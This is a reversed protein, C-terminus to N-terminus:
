IRSLGWIKNGGADTGQKLVILLRGLLSKPEPEQIIFTSHERQIVYNPLDQHIIGDEPLHGRFARDELTDRQEPPIPPRTDPITLRGWGLWPDTTSRTISSQIPVRSPPIPTDQPVIVPKPSFVKQFKEVFVSVDMMKLNKLAEPQRFFERTAHLTYRRRIKIKQFLENDKKPYWIWAEGDDLGRLGDFWKSITGSNPNQINKVWEMVAKKDLNHITRFILLCSAQTLIDKNVVAHRQSILTCGINFNGGRRVLSDIAGACVAVDGVIRQPCNGTIFVAGNRRAIFNGNPVTIDWVIGKYIEQSLKTKKNQIFHFPYR